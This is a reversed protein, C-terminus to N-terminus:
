NNVLFVIQKHDGSIGYEELKGRVNDKAEKSVNADLVRSHNLLSM